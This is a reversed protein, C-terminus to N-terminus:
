SILPTPSVEQPSSLSPSKLFYYNLLVLQIYVRKGPKWAIYITRALQTWWCCSYTWAGKWCLVGNVGLHRHQPSEELGRFEPIQTRREGHSLLFGNGAWSCICSCDMASIPSSDPYNSNAKCESYRKLHNQPNLILDACSSPMWSEPHNAKCFFQANLPACSRQLVSCFYSTPTTLPHEATAMSADLSVLGLFCDSKQVRCTHPRQFARLRTEVSHKSLFSLPPPYLSATFM